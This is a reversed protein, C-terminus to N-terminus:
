CGRIRERGVHLTERLIYDDEAKGAHFVAPRANVDANRLIGNARQPHPKRACQRCLASNLAQCHDSAGPSPASTPRLTGSPPSRGRPGTARVCDRPVIVQYGLFFADHCTSRVCINTVVGTVM